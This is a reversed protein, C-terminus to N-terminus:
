KELDEAGDNPGAYELAWEYMKDLFLTQVEESEPLDALTKPFYPVAFALQREFPVKGRTPDMYFAHLRDGEIWYYGYDTFRQPLSAARNDVKQFPAAPGGGASYVAGLDFYEILVQHQNELATLDVTGTKGPDATVNQPDTVLLSRLYPDAVIKRATAKLVEPIGATFRAAQSADPLGLRQRMVEAVIQPTLKAM